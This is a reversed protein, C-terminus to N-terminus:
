RHYKGRLYIFSISSTLLKARVSGVIRLKLTKCRLPFAYQREDSVNRGGGFGIEPLGFGGAFGAVMDMELAPDYEDDADKYVKDVFLQVTFEATGQTDMSLRQLQKTKVRNGLDIWPLEWDIDVAVGDPNSATIYDAYYEEGSFVSNGYQYITNDQCFFVRNHESRCGCTFSWGTITSWRIKRLDANYSMAYTTKTGNVDMTFFMKRKLRDVVVFNKPDSLSINTLDAALLSAIDDSLPKTEFSENFTAQKASFVGAPSLFVIDKDTELQNKHGVLGTGHVTDVVRPIHDGTANYEGLIIVVFADAFFVVLYNKFKGLGTIAGSRDGVYTGLDLTTADNPAADGPWTGTTSKNSVIITVDDTSTNAMVTYNNVVVVHKAIPTNVNSGTALDQLYTVTHDDAILIPKDVGNVVVLEGRGEYFDVYSTASWGSPAGPLASAIASNWIATVTGSGDVKDITGDAQIVVLMGNFYTIGVINAATTAFEKTGFRNVISYTDEDFVNQLVPAYKPNVISENDVIRLGGSFDKITADSVVPQPKRRGRMQPFPSISM